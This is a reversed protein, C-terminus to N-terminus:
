RPWGYALALVWAWGAALLWVWPRKTWVLAAGAIVAIAVAVGFAVLPRDYLTVLLAATPVGVAAALLLAKVLDPLRSRAAFPFAVVFAAALGLRLATVPSFAGPDGFPESPEPTVLLRGVTVNLLFLLLFSLVLVVPVLILVAAGEVVPRRAQQTPVASEKRSM